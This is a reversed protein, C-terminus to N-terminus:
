LSPRFLSVSLNRHDMLVRCCLPAFCRVELQQIWEVGEQVWEYLDRLTAQDFHGSTPTLGPQPFLSFHAVCSHDLHYYPHAHLTKKLEIHFALLLDFDISKDAHSDISRASGGDIICCELQRLLRRHYHRAKNLLPLVAACGNPLPQRFPIYPKNNAKADESAGYDVKYYKYLRNIIKRREKRAEEDQSLPEATWPM